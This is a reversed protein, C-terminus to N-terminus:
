GAVRLWLATADDSIKFRPYTLCAADAQEIERIEQALAALGRTRIAQMLGDGDYRGYDSVLSSFGDSMLLLDDGPAVDFRAHHTAIASADPIVGLARHDNQARQARRDELVAGIIEPAAGTGAGLRLADAAESSSDPTGTCWITENGRALLTPCDAAWAIEVADGVLQAACFAAKPLEWPALPARTQQAAYRAAIQDFLAACTARMDREDLTAMAASTTSALWAAGGQAGLLGPPGMDTAGDVVWGMRASAGARDDNPKTRQGNLSITQIFDFHM